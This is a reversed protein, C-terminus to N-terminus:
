FSLSDAYPLRYVDGLAVTTPKGKLLTEVAKSVHSASVKDYAAVQESLSFPQLRLAQAGVSELRDLCTELGGVASFKAQAVARKIDAESVTKALAKLQEAAASVASSVDASGGSVQVGFLGADSYGFNFAKLSVNDFKAATQALVSSGSADGLVFRLVQLAAFDASSTAAGEFALLYHSLASHTENRIEAGYYQTAPSSVAGAPLDFYKEVLQKVTDHALGAGVVAVQGQVFLQRAYNKVSANSIAGSKAFVSNGLGERFAGQHALEIASVEHNAWASLAQAKTHRAVDVFEHEQFKQHQVVDALIEAFQDANESLFEASYVLSEHTVNSSLVAGALEAERAIRFATRKTNNKFGYNKLLHAVGRHGNEFRSGGKVVVALGAIHGPEEISAVKIGNNATSIHVGHTATTAYTAKNVTPLSVIARRTAALM